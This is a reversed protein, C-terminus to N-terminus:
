RNGEKLKNRMKENDPNLKNLREWFSEKKAAPAKGEGIKHYIQEREQLQEILKATDADFEVNAKPNDSLANRNAEVTKIFREVKEANQAPPLRSDVLTRVMRDGEADSINGGFTVKLGPLAAAELQQKIAVTEPRGAEAFVEMARGLGLPADQGASAVIDGTTGTLQAGSASRLRAAVLKLQRISNNAKEDGGAKDYDSKAKGLAQLYAKRELPITPLKRGAVGASLSQFTKDGITISSNPAAESTETTSPTPPTTSPVESAPAPVSASAPPTSSTPSTSSSASPTSAEPAGALSTLSPMGMNAREANIKALERADQRSSVLRQLEKMRNLDANKSFELAAAQNAGAAQQDLGKGLAAQRQMEAKQAAMQEKGKTTFATEGIRAAMQQNAVDSKMERDMRDNVDNLMIKLRDEWNSRNFQLGSLNVNHRIGYMGAFIQNIANGLQEAIQGWQNAKITGKRENELDDLRRKTQDLRDQLSLGDKGKRNMEARQYADASKGIEEFRSKLAAAGEEAMKEKAAQVAKFTDSMKQQLSGRERVALSSPLGAASSTPELPSAEDGGLGGMDVDEDMSEEDSMSFDMDEVGTSLVGNPGALPKKNMTAM